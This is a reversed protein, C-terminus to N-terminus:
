FRERVRTVSDCGLPSFARPCKKHCKELVLKLYASILCKLQFLSEMLLQRSERTNVSAGIQHVTSCSCTNLYIHVCLVCKFYTYINLDHTKKQEVM